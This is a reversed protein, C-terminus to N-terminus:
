SVLGQVDVGTFTVTCSAPDLVQSLIWVANASWGSSGSGSYHTIPIGSLLDFNMGCLSQTWTVIRPPDAGGFTLRQGAVADATASDRILGYTENRTVVGYKIKSPAHGQSSSSNWQGTGDDRYNAAYQYGLDNAFWDTRHSLAFAPNKLIDRKDTITRASGLFTSRTTDFMKVFLQSSANLGLLVNSSVNADRLVDRISRRVGNAGIVFGGLFGGGLYTGAKTSATTFSTEDVVPISTGDGPYFEFTLGTLWAGSQYSQTFWQVMLYKYLLLLDTILTGTGDGVTEMGTVDAYVPKTGSQFDTAVTNRFFVLQYRHGNYDHFLAGSPQVDTWNAHGPAWVDTGYTTLASGNQYLTTVAKCTHGALLGAAYTVGGIVLNGVSIVKVAGTGTSVTGGIIPVGLNQSAAPCAPFDDTTITRQPILKDDRFLRYDTSIVDTAQVTYTLHSSMPDDRLIGRFISSPNGQVLRTAESELYEYVASNMLSPRSLNRFYHDHDALVMTASQEQWAGSLWDSAMRTVPGMSLLRPAKYGGYYTGPDRLPQKSFQFTSGAASIAGWFVPTQINCPYDTAPGPTSVTVPIDYYLLCVKHTAVSTSSQRIRVAVRTSGAIHLLAPLHLYEMRPLNGAEAGLGIRLTTIVVESAAAGIGLDFEIELGGTVATLLFAIGYVDMEDTIGTTLAVWASNTWAAGSPTVTAPAATVSVAATNYTVVHDSDLGLYYILAVTPAASVGADARARVSVAAGLPIGSFPTPLMYTTSGSGGSNGLELRVPSGLSVEAGTLGIGVDLDISGSSWTGPYVCFGAVQAENAVGSSFQVWSGYTWASANPTVTLGTAAPPAITLATTTVVSM